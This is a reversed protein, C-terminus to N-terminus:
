GDEGTEPRRVPVDQDTLHIVKALRYGCEALAWMFFLVGASWALWDIDPLVTPNPWRMPPPCDINKIIDAIEKQTIFGIHIGTNRLVWWAGGLAGVLGVTPIMLVAKIARTVQICALPKKIAFAGVAGIAAAGIAGLALWDKIEM